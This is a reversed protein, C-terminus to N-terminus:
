EQTGSKFYLALGILPVYAIIIFVISPLIDSQALYALPALWFANIVLVALTVIKHSRFHRAAFQYAHSRHADFVREGRLIRRLLTTTADIIFIALIILWSWLFSQNINASILVLAGIMIGLFGSGADGMFIKAPPFNWLLFGTSAAALLFHLKVVWAAAGTYHLIAGMVICTSITEIGAIGDIGDMFNYLNLIWVLALITLAYGVYGLSLTAFGIDLSQVAGITFTITIAATFHVILRWLPNIHGHDDAFGILAVILGSVIIAFIKLEPVAHHLYFLSIIYCIVIAVGGGRPTPMSHSSRVNPIDLVNNRLAYIRILGTMLFSILLAVCYILM